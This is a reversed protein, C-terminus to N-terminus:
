KLYDEIKQIQPSWVAFESKLAEHDVAVVTYNTGSKVQTLLLSFASDLFIQHSNGSGDLFKLDIVHAIDNRDLNHPEKSQSIVAPMIKAEPLLIDIFAPSSNGAAFDSIFASLLIDQVLVKSAFLLLASRAASSKIEMLGNPDTEIAITVQRGAPVLGSDTVWKYSNLTADSIFMSQQAYGKTTGLYYVSAAVLPSGDPNETSFGDVIFGLTGGASDKVRYYKPGTFHRPPNYFFTNKFKKLQEIGNVLLTSPAIKISKILQKFIRLSFDTMSDNQIMDLSFMHGSPMPAIATLITVANSQSNITAITMLSGNIYKEQTDVVDGDIMKARATIASSTDTKVPALSYQWNLSIKEAASIQMVAGLNFSNKSYSFESSNRQWRSGSPASVSIGTGQIAIPKSLRVRRSKSVVTWAIFISIVLISFMAVKGLDLRKMKLSDTM